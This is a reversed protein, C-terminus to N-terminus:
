AAFRGLSDLARQQFRLDIWGDLPVARDIQRNKLALDHAATLNTTTMGGNVGFGQIRILEDYARSLVAANMGPTYKLAVEITGARNQVIYRCAQIVARTIATAAAPNGDLLDKRLVVLEVPYDPLIDAVPQILKINPDDLAQMAFDVNLLAGQVRGALLALMREYGGGVGLWRVTDAPVGARELLPFMLYQSIAGPRSIAFAKGRLDAITNLEKRVAVIYSLHAGPAAVGRIAHGALTAALVGEPDAPAIDVQRSAIAQLALPGGRLQMFEAVDIGNDRFFGREHAVHLWINHLSPPTVGTAVKVSTRNQATVASPVSLSTSASALLTLFRRRAVLRRDGAV